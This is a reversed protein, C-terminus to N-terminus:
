GRAPSCAPGTSRDGAALAHRRDVGERGRPLGAHLLGVARVPPAGTRRRSSRARRPGGTGASGTTRGCSTSSATASRCRRCRCTTARAPLRPRRGARRRRGRARHPRLLARAGRLDAALRRRRRRAVQRPLGVADPAALRRRLPGDLRRRRQVDAPRHRVGVVNVPYDAPRERVNPDPSWQKM